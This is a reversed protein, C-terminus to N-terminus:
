FNYKSINNKGLILMANGEWCHSTAPPGCPQISTYGPVHLNTGPTIKKHEALLQAGYMTAKGTLGPDWLFIKYITGNDVYNKTLSPLSTGVICVKGALGAETVAKAIGPVDTAASGEFGKIHPYKALIQKTEQYAVNENEQSVYPGSGVRTIGPYKAKAEALAASVWQMHSQATLNGVFAAYQGKGHMCTALQDMMAKGYDANNFAELDFNTHTLDSAEQSVVIIGQSQAQGLVGELSAVDNPVVGIVTPKQPILSTLISVQGEATAQAPGTQDVKIGTTKSFAQVGVNMRSFWTSATLKVVNDFKFNSTNAANGGGSTGSTGSSGGCGAAAIAVVAAVAAFTIRRRM